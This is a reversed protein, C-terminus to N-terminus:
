RTVAPSVRVSGALLRDKRGGPYTVELDFVGSTFTLSDTTTSDLQISLTGAAGGFTIRGNTTSMTLLVTPDELEARVQAEASCGTFDVLAGLHDSVVFEKLFDAGQEIYLKTKHAPM